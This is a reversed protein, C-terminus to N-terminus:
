RAEKYSALPGRSFGPDYQLQDLPRFAGAGEPIARALSECPSFGADSQPTNAARSFDHGTVFGSFRFLRAM